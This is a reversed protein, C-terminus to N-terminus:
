KKSAQVGAIQNIYDTLHRAIDPYGCPLWKLGMQAQYPFNGGRGARSSLTVFRVGKNNKLFEKWEAGTYYYKDFEFLIVVALGGPRRFNHPNAALLRTLGFLPDEAPRNGLPFVPPGHIGTKDDRHDSSEAAVNREYETRLTRQLIKDSEVPSAGTKKSLALGEYLVFVPSRDFFGTKPASLRGQYRAARFQYLSPNNSYFATAAQWSLNSLHYFFGNAKISQALFSWCRGHNKHALYFLIDTVPGAKAAPGRRKSKPPGGAKEGTTQGNEETGGGPAPRKGTGEQWPSDTRKGEKDVDVTINVNVERGKRGTRKSSREGAESDDGSGLFSGDDGNCGALLLVSFLLLASKM